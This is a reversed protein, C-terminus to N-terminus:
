PWYSPDTALPAELPQLADRLETTRLRLRDAITLLVSVARYRPDTLETLDQIWSAVRGALLPFLRDQLPAEPVALGLRSGIHFLKLLGEWADADPRDAIAALRNDLLRGFADAALDLDLQLGLYRAQDALDLLGAYAEPRIAADMTQLRTIFRDSWVHELATKMWAPLPVGAAVMAEAPAHVAEVLRGLQDEIAADADALFRRLLAQREDVLLDSLRILRAAFRGAWATGQPDPADLAAAAGVAFADWSAEPWPAVAAVFGHPHRRAAAAFRGTEHTPEAEGRVGALLVAGEHEVPAPELRWRYHTATGLPNGLLGDAILRAVAHEPTVRSPRVLREWIQRADGHVELNSGAQALDQLLVAELDLPAFPAALDLARAAYRLNQVTELGSVDSFFWGCSTYMLMAQHQMELLRLGTSQENVGCRPRGYRAFFDTVAADGPDLLLDIYGDRAAWPDPFVRGAEDQFIAALADRLRDLAHRLPGRWAQTWGPGGGASCGCDERWRGVGHSCSWASEPLLEVEWAPRTGRLYAALNTIEFGRQPAERRFLTALCMDGFREHHGFSEGDTAILILPDAAGVMAEGIRDALVRADRLYHQFSIGRSLPAHYFCVDLGRDGLPRGAEDRRMWRYPRRPDLEGTAPTAWAGGGLPRWRAAQAPSLIVYRLGAEELLAMTAADVATEPMWMAEPPRGFRYAFERMGWHIQTRRDRANALPLITHNYAQAIANGFGLRERSARDADTLAAVLGPHAAALWALLTPGFNWSLQEYNNVVDQICGREDLLRSRANPLYCESAIRANWDHFPAASDQREITGTWPNERPPQYFHGHVVIPM